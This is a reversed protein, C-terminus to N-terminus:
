CDRYRIVSTRTTWSDLTQAKLRNRSQSQSMGNIKKLAELILLHIALPGTFRRSRWSKSARKSRKSASWSKVFLAPSSKKLAFKQLYYNLTTCIEQATSETSPASGSIHWKKSLRIGWAMQDRVLLSYRMRLKKLSGRDWLNKAIRSSCRFQILWVQILSKHCSYFM